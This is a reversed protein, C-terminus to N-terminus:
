DEVLTKDLISERWRGKEILHRFSVKVAFAVWEVHKMKQYIALTIDVTWIIISQSYHRGSKM